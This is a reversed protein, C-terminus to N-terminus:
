KKRGSSGEIATAWPGGDVAAEHTFTQRDASVQKLTFRGEIVKSGMREDSTYTWADGAVAGTAPGSWGGSDVGSYTYVKDQASSGLVGLGNVPGM